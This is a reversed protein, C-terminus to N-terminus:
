QCALVRASFRCADPLMETGSVSVFEDVARPETSYSLGTGGVSLQAPSINPGPADPERLVRSVSHLTDCVLTNSVAAGISRNSELLPPWISPVFSVYLCIARNFYEIVSLKNLGHQM